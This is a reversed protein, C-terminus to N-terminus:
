QAHEIPGVILFRSCCGTIEKCCSAAKKAEHAVKVPIVAGRRWVSIWNEEYMWLSCMDGEVHILLVVAFCLSSGQQSAFM